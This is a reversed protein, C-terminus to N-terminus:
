RRGDEQASHIVWILHVKNNGSGASSAFLLRGQGKCVAEYRTEDADIYFPISNKAMTHAGFNRPLGLLAQAESARDHWEEVAHVQQRAGAQRHDRRGM